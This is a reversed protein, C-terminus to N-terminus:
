RFLERLEKYNYRMLALAFIQSSPTIWDSPVREIIQRFDAEDVRELKRSARRFLDPYKRVARRVLDLPSPGHREEESWYVAGRGREAYNGVRNEALLMDRRVDLLERGLSSAHDYSPALFGRWRNGTRKLLIGWNEHHRDTNGILADLMLYEAMCSKALRVANPAPFVRDMVRWINALTHSAQGFEREPDYGHVVIALMQNGHVLTRGGRAFSETVSGQMGEFEALEVKASQIGLLGAVEAAVKEAWHQGTNPQPYKFLWVASDETQRYWFKRKSGMEEPELVWEPRVDIIPYPDSM